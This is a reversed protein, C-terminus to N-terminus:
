RPCGARGGEGEASQGERGRVERGSERRDWPGLITPGAERSNGTSRPRDRERMSIKSSWQIRGPRNGHVM